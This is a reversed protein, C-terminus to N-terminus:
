RMIDLLQHHLDDMFQRVPQGFTLSELFAPFIM